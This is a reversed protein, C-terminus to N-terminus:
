NKPDKFWDDKFDQKLFELIIKLDFNLHGFDLKM